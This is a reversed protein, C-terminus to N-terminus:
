VVFCCMLDCIEDNEMFVCTWFHCLSFWRSFFCLCVIHLTFTWTNATHCNIYYNHFINLIKDPFLVHFFAFLLLM